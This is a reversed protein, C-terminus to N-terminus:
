SSRDFSAATIVLGWIWLSRWGLHTKHMIENWLTILQKMGIIVTVQSDNVNSVKLEKDVLVDAIHGVYWQDGDDMTGHLMLVCSIDDPLNM